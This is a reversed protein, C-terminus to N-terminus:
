GQENETIIEAIIKLSSWFLQECYDAGLKSALREMQADSISLAKRKSFGVLPNMLDARCVSTVQFPKDLQETENKKKSM